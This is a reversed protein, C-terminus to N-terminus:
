RKVVVQGGKMVFAVHELVTVERGTFPRLAASNGIERAMSLGAMLGKPDQPDGLYNADNTRESRIKRLKNIKQNAYNAFNASLQTKPQKSECVRWLLHVLM